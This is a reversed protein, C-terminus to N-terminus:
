RLGRRVVCVTVVARSWRDYGGEIQSGAAFPGAKRTLIARFRRKTASLEIQVDDFGWVEGTVPFFAKYVSEKASFLISYDIAAHDNKERDSLTADRVDAPLDVATEVDIGLALVESKQAAVAFCIDDSHTISGVYGDPWIPARQHGVPIACPSVGLTALAQRAAARGKSFEFRRAPIARAIASEEEPWLDLADHDPVGLAVDPGLLKTLADRCDPTM